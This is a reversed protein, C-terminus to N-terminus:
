QPLIVPTGGVMQAPPALIVKEGAGLGSLLVVTKEDRDGLEVRNEKAKGDKDITFVKHIGAFSTVAEAPVRVAPNETPLVITASAFAGPKLLGKPNVILVEVTFTRSAPDVQPSVRSIVGKFAERHAQVQVTVDMKKDVLGVHREPVMARLKVPDDDILRFLPTGERVYEGVSVLREAVAYSLMPNAEQQAASTSVSLPTRISTDALRQNAVNLEAQRTQAEALLAKANLLEVQFESQAVEFVTRADAYEQESILPPKQDFLKKLREYKASVNAMQLATRRVTPVEDAKLEASPFQTLGLKALVASVAMQREKVALDYDIRDIEALPVDPGIRDGLDHRLAVVRGPVKASVIVDEMAYLTGTIRITPHTIAPQSQATQQIKVPELAKGKGIKGPAQGPGCGTLVFGAFLGAVLATRISIM